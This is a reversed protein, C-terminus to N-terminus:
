DFSPKPIEAAARPSGRGLRRLMEKSWQLNRQLETRSRDFMSWSQHLYAVAGSLLAAAFLLAGALVIAFSQALSLTTFENLALAVVALALPVCCLTLVTGIALCIGPLILTRLGAEFDVVFLKGQLEALLLVDHALEAAIRAVARPPSETRSGNTTLPAQDVM